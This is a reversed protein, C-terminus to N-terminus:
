NSGIWACSLKRLRLFKGGHSRSEVEFIFTSLFYKDDISKLFNGIPTRPRSSPPANKDDIEQFKASGSIKLNPCFNSVYFLPRGGTGECVGQVKGGRVSGKGGEWNEGRRLGCRLERFNRM